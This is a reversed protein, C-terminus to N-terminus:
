TTVVCVCVCILVILKFQGKVYTKLIHPFTEPIVTADPQKSM